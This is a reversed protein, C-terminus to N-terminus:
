IAPSDSTSAATRSLSESNKAMEEVDEPTLGSLRAAVEYIRNLAAASKKNLAPIDEPKFLLNGTGDIVSLQVLRVTAEALRVKQSRGSGQLMSEQWADRGAGTLGRVKVSGGWEPVEVTETEIDVAALITKRDLMIEGKVILTYTGAIEANGDKGCM